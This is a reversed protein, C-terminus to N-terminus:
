WTRRMTLRYFGTARSTNRWTPFGNDVQIYAVLRTYANWPSAGAPMWSFGARNAGAYSQGDVRIVDYSSGLDSYFVSADVGEDLSLGLAHTKNYQSAANNVAFWGSDYMGNLAYTTASTVTTADTVAEGVFVRQKTEWASGDWRKMTRTALDFWHMDAPKHWCSLEYVKWASAGGTNANALLRFYRAATYSSVTYTNQADATASIATTDITTWSAGDSSWEAKVSNICENATSSNRITFAVIRVTNGAGADIGIYANGTVPTAATQSSGWYNTPDGDFAAAASGSGTGGNVTTAGTSAPKPHWSPAFAQYVPYYLSQGYTLAGTGSNRDVYLYNTTSATLGSWADSVDASVRGVYSVQGSSDYGAAFAIAVAVSTAALDVALGTGASLFNACGTTSDVAGSMVTQSVTTASSGSAGASGQSAFLTWYDSTSSPTQPASHAATCVYTSGSYLVLDDVSYATGAAYDGRHKDVVGPYTAAFARAVEEFAAFVEPMKGKLRQFLTLRPTSM